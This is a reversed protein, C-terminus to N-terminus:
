WFILNKWNQSGSNIRGGVKFRHPGGLRCPNQLWGAWRHAVESEAGGGGGRKSATSGGLRCPNHLWGAKKDAVESNQTARSEKHFAEHVLRCRQCSNTPDHASRVKSADDMSIDKAGGRITACTYLKSLECQTSRKTNIAGVQSYWHRLNIGQRVPWVNDPCVLLIQSNHIQNGLSFANLWLLPLLPCFNPHKRHGQMQLQM